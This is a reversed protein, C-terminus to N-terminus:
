RVRLTKYIKRGKVKKSKRQERNQKREERMEGRGGQGGEEEGKGYREWAHVCVIVCEYACLIM